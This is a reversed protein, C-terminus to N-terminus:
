ETLTAVAPVYVSVARTADDPCPPINWTSIFPTFTDPAIATGFVPPHCTHCLTVVLTVSLAPACIARTTISVAPGPPATPFMVVSANAAAPPEGVFPANLPVGTAIGPVTR